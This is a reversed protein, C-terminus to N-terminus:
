QSAAEQPSKSVSNEIANSDWGGGLAKILEVSAVYRRSLLSLATRETSLAAAQVAIVTQQSAVGARFQNQTITEAERGAKAAISQAHEAKDLADLTSLSDEVERFGNIIAQKYDAVAEDYAAVAKSKTAKPTERPYLLAALDSGGVVGKSITLGSFLSLTPYAAAEAVGIQASASAVRREAAVIDPRRVLLDAPLVDPIEPISVTNAIEAIAFDAPAKGILVAIAHELQARTVKADHMQAQAASLQTQAQMLDGRSAVGVAYQNQTIKLSREYSTATDKLLKTETDQVRLLLYNQALQAQLSLKMGALDAQSAQTTAGSAEINRRIRGWLDIEWNVIVGLDNKGGAVISPRKAANAM